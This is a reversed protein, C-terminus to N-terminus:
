QETLKTTERESNLFNQQEDNGWEALNHIETFEKTRRRCVGNYPRIVTFAGSYHSGPSRTLSTSATM